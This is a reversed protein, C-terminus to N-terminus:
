QKKSIFFALTLSLVINLAQLLLIYLNGIIEFSGLLTSLSVILANALSLIFVILSLTSSIKDLKYASKILLLLSSLKGDTFADSFLSVETKEGKDRFYAAESDPLVKISGKKIKCKKEVYEPTINPDASHIIVSMNKSTIYKFFSAISRKIHYSVVLLMCFEGNVSLFLLKRDGSIYQEEFNEKPIKIHNEELFEKSGLLIKNNDIIAAIGKSCVIFDEAEPIIDDSQEVVQRLIEYLPSKGAKAAATCYITAKKPNTYGFTKVSHINCSSSETIENADIVIAKTKTIESATKYSIVSSNKETLGINEKLLLLSAIFTYFVPFSTMLMACISTTAAVFSHKAIGSAIGVTVSLVITLIYSINGGYQKPIVNTLSKMIGSLFQTKATYRVCENKSSYKEKVVGEVGSESLTKFLSVVNNKGISNLTIRSNINLLLKPVTTATMILIAIPALMKANIPSSSAVAISQIISMAFILLIGFNLSFKLKSIDKIGEFLEKACIIGAFILFIINICIYITPNFTGNESNNFVLSIVSIIISLVVLLGTKVIQNFGIKKLKVLTSRIDQKSNLEFLPEEDQLNSNNIVEFFRKSKIKKDSENKTVDIKNDDIANHSTVIEKEEIDFTENKDTQKKHKKKSSIKKRKEIETFKSTSEFASFSLQNENEMGTDETATRAIARLKESKGFSPIESKISNYANSFPDSDNNIKSEVPISINEGVNNASIFDAMTQQGEISTDEFGGQAVIADEDSLQPMESKLEFRQYYSHAKFGTDDTLIRGARKTLIHHEAAPNVSLHPNIESCRATNHTAEEYQRQKPEKVTRTSRKRLEQGYKSIFDNYASDQKNVKINKEVSKHPSRKNKSSVKKEAM